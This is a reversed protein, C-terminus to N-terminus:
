SSHCYLSLTPPLTSFCIFVHVCCRATLNYFISYYILTTGGRSILFIRAEATQIEVAVNEGRM